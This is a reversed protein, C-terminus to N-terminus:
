EYSAAWVAGDTIWFARANGDRLTVVKLRSAFGQASDAIKFPASWGSADAFQSAWISYGPGGSYGTSQLWIAVARGADAAASHEIVQRADDSEFRKAAEFSGDARLRVSWYGHEYTMANAGQTSQGYTVFGSDGLVVQPGSAGTGALRQADSWVGSSVRLASAWLSTESDEAIWSALADGARNLSLQVGAPASGMQGPLSTAGSWGSAGRFRNARITLTPSTGDSQSWVAVGDGAENLALVPFTAPGASGSIKAAAEWGAGATYRSAWIDDVLTDPLDGPYYQQWVALGHGARDLAIDPFSSEGQNEPDLQQAAGWAGAAKATSAFVHEQAGQGARSSWAVMGDGDANIALALKRRGQSGLKEPAQWRGDRIRSVYVDSTGGNAASQLWAGLGNADANVVLTFSFRDISGLEVPVREAAHWSWCAKGDPKLQGSSGCACHFSGDTNVCRDECGGNDKACEDVDLCRTGDLRFGAKCACTRGGATNTCTGHEADCGGNDKACEDIDRCQKGDGNVDDYGSPCAGCRAVGQSTSCEVLRDCGGNDDGCADIEPPDEPAAGSGAASDEGADARESRVGGAGGSVGSSMTRPRSGAAAREDGEYDVPESSAGRKESCGALVVAACLSVSIAWGRRKCMSM